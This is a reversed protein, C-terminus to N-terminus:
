DRGKLLNAGALQAKAHGGDFRLFIQRRMLGGGRALTFSNFSARSQLTALLHAVHTSAPALEAPAFVHELAADDGIQCVLASNRQVVCGHDCAEIEVLTLRAGAGLRVLSRAYVAQADAGSSLSVIEVPHAMEV